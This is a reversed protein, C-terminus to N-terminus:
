VDGSEGYFISKNLSYMIEKKNYKLIPVIDDYLQLYRYDIGSCIKDYICKKCLPVKRMAREYLFNFNTIFGNDSVNDEENKAMPEVGQNGRKTISLDTCIQFINPVTPLTCIPFTLFNVYDFFDIAIKAIQARIESYSPIINLNKLTNGSVHTFAIAFHISPYKLHIFKVTDYLTPASLKTVVLKVSIPINYASLNNIGNITNNFSGKCNAIKDHIKEDHSHVTLLVYKIFDKYKIFEKFFKANSFRMGNTQIAIKHNKKACYAVIKNFDKRFTPEGGTLQIVQNQPVKDIIKKLQSFTFPPKYRLNATACHICDCNCSYQLKLDFFVLSDVNNRM